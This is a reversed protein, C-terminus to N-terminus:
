DEITAISAKEANSEMDMLVSSLREKKSRASDLSESAKDVAKKSDDISKSLDAFYKKLVEFSKWIRSTYQEIQLTRFGLSLSNLLAAFNNPGTIIVREESQLRDVFGDMRLLEAYISEAPLFLIAFDTTEPPCIYKKHIDKAESLVRDKLTRLASAILVENRSDVAEKYKVYDATPFKSDIPLYVEGRGDKGPLRIAFEVRERNNKPSYDKVYQDPTLIDSLIAEAQMEGWVGRAKVNSFVKNINKVDDALANLSGLSSYLKSLNETVDKFARSIRDELTQQLKEDVTNRMQELKENNETRIRDMDLHIRETLRDTKDVIDKFAHTNIDSIERLRANLTNMTDIHRENIRNELVGLKQYFYDMQERSSSNITNLGASLTERIAREEREIGEIAQNLQPSYSSIREKAKLKSYLVLLLVSLVIILISLIITSLAM